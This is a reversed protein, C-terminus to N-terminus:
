TTGGKKATFREFDAQHQGDAWELGLAWAQELTEAYVWRTYSANGSRWANEARYDRRPTALRLAVGFVCEALSEGAQEVTVRPDDDDDDDDDLWARAQKALPVLSPHKAEDDLLHEIFEGLPEFTSTGYYAETALQSALDVVACIRLEAEFAEQARQKSM